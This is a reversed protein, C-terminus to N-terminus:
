KIGEKKVELARLHCTDNLLSLVFNGNTYDFINIACTNQKINWFHSNDLGLVACLLVKNVVRHSAMLVTENKHRMIIKRLSAMARDRIEDLTEGGPPRFQQPNNVWKDFDEKFESRVRRLPLGQWKGFNMDNLGALAKVPLNHRRAITEGTEFARTLPSSYFAKIETRALAQATAEAQSLGRSNLNVDIRGRFLEKRNWQTEGHRVLIIITKSM